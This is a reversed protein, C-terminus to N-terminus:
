GDFSLCDALALVVAEVLATAELTKNLEVDATGMGHALRNRLKALSDLDDKIRNSSKTPVTENTYSKIAHHKGFEASFLGNFGIVKFLTEIKEPTCTGFRVVFVDGSFTSEKDDDLINALNERLKLFNFDAGDWTGSAEHRLGQGARALYEREVKAKREHNWHSPHRCAAEVYKSVAYGLFEELVGTAQLILGQFASSPDSSAHEIKQNFDNAIRVGDGGLGYFYGSIDTRHKLLFSRFHHVFQANDSIEKLKSIYAATSIQM